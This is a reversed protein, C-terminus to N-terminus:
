QKRYEVIKFNEFEKIVTRNWDVFPFFVDSNYIGKIESAIIIDILNNKIAYEYIKGGGIIFSNKFQNLADELSNFTIVNEIKSSTIVINTRNSLPRKPLSEWTKRGMIINQNITTNKFHIFDEKIPNWPLQNKYGIGRKEDYAVIIKNM